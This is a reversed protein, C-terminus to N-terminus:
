CDKIFGSMNNKFLMKEEFLKNRQLQEVLRAIMQDVKQVAFGAEQGNPGFTRIYNGPQYVNFLILNVPDKELTLWNITTSIQSEWM